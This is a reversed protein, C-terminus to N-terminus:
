LGDLRSKGHSTQKGISQSTSNYSLAPGTHVKDGKRIRARNKRAIIYM